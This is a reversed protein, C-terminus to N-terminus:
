KSVLEMNLIATNTIRSQKDAKKEEASVARVVAFRIRIRASASSPSLLAAHTGRMVSLEPLISLAIKIPLLITFRDADDRAVDSAMLSQPFTPAPIAVPIRVSSIKIKPSIEGFVIAVILASM